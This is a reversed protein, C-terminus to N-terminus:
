KYALVGLGCVTRSGSGGTENAFGGAQNGVGTGDMAMVVNVDIVKDADLARAGAAAEVTTSAPNDSEFGGTGDDAIRGADVVKDSNDVDMLVEENVDDVPLTAAQVFGVHNVYGDQGGGGSSAASGVTRM